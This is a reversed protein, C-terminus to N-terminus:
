LRNLEIYASTGTKRLNLKITVDSVGADAQAQHFFPEVLLWYPELQLENSALQQYIATLLALERNRFAVRNASHSPQTTYKELDQRSQLIWQKLHELAIATNM